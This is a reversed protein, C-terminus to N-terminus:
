VIAGTPPPLVSTCASCRHALAPVPTLCEPCERTKPAEVPAPGKLKNVQRILLTATVVYLNLADHTLLNYGIRVGPKYGCLGASNVYGM